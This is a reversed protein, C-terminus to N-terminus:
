CADAQHSAGGLRKSTKTSLVLLGWTAQHLMMCVGALRRRQLKSCFQLKVAFSCLPVGTRAAFWPSPSRYAVAFASGVALRRRSYWLPAPVRAFRSASGEALYFWWGGKPVKQTFCLLDWPLGGRLVVRGKLFVLTKRLSLGSVGAGRLVM